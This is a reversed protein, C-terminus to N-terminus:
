AKSEPPDKLSHLYVVKLVVLYQSEYGQMVFRLGLHTHRHLTHSRLHCSDWAKADALNELLVM